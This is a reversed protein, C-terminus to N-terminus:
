YTALPTPMFLAVFLALCAWAIIRRGRTLPGPDVAPHDPGSSFRGIAGTVVYWTLWFLSNLVAHGYSMASAHRAIPLM